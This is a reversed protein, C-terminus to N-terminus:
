SITRAAERAARSSPSTAILRTAAIIRVAETPQREYAGVHRRFHHGRWAGLAPQLLRGFVPTLGLGALSPVNM